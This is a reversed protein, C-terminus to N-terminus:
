LYSINDYWLNRNCHKLKQFIILKDGSNNLFYLYIFLKTNQYVSSTQKDNIPQVPKCRANQM